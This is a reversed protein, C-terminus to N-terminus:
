LPAPPSDSVESVHSRPEAHMHRANAEYHSDAMQLLSIRINGMAPAVSTTTDPPNEAINMIISVWFPRGCCTSPPRCTLQRKPGLCSAAIRVWTYRM